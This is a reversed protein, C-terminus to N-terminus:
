MWDVECVIWHKNLKEIISGDHTCYIPLNKGEKIASPSDVYVLRFYFSDQFSVILDNKNWIVECRESIDQEINVCPGSEEEIIPDYGVSVGGEEVNPDYRMSQQRQMEVAHEFYAQHSFFWLATPSPMMVSLVFSLVLFYAPIYIKNRSTYLIVAIILILGGIAISFIIPNWIIRDIGYVRGMLKIKIVYLALALIISGIMLLLGM